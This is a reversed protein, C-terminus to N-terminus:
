TDKTTSLVNVEAPTFDIYYERGLEFIQAAENKVTMELTGNPTADWFRKNEHSPDNSYVPSFKYRVGSPERGIGGSFQTVEICWFKARVITM